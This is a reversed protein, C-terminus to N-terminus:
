TAGRTGTRLMTHWSVSMLGPINRGSSLSPPRKSARTAGAKTRVSTAGTTGLAPRREISSRAIACGASGRRSCSATTGAPTKWMGRSGPTRPRASWRTRSAGGCGDVPGSVTRQAAVNRARGRRTPRFRKWTPSRTGSLRPTGSALDIGTRRVVTSTGPPRGSIALFVGSIRQVPIGPVGGSTRRAQMELQAGSIRRQLHAVSIWRHGRTPSHASATGNCRAGTGPRLPHRFISLRRRFGDRRMARPGARARPM